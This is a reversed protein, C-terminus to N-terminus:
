DIKHLQELFLSSLLNVYNKALINKSAFVCGSRFGSGNDVLFDALKDGHAILDCESLFALASGM